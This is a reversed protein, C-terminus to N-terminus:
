AGDRAWPCRGASWLRQERRAAKAARRALAPRPLVVGPKRRPLQGRGRPLAHTPPPLVAVRQTAGAAALARGAAASARGEGGEAALLQLAAGAEPRPRRLRLPDSGRRRAERRLPAGGGGGRAELARRHAAQPTSAADRASAAAGREALHDVLVAGHAQQAAAPHRAKRPALLPHSAGRRREGAPHAAADASGAEQLRGLQVAADGRPRM